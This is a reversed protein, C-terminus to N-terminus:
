TLRAIITTAVAAPSADSNIALMLRVPYLMPLTEKMVVTIAYPTTRAINLM